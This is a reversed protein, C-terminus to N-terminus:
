KTPSRWYSLRGLIQPFLQFLFPRAVFCNRTRFHRCYKAAEECKKKSQQKANRWSFTAIRKRLAVWFEHYKNLDLLSILCHKKMIRWNHRRLRSTPYLLLRTAWQKWKRARKIMFGNWSDRTEFIKAHNEFCFAVSTFILAWKSQRWKYKLDRRRGKNCKSHVLSRVVAQKAKHKSEWRKWLLCCEMKHKGIKKEQAVLLYQSKGKRAM